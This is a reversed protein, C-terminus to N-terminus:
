RPRSRCRILMEVAEPPTMKSREVYALGNRGLYEPFADNPEKCYGKEVMALALHPRGVAGEGATEQVREWEVHIRLTGLKEVIM